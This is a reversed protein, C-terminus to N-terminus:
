HPMLRCSMWRLGIRQESYDVILGDCHCSALMREFTKRSRSDQSHFRTWLTDIYHNATGGVCALRSEDCAYAEGTTMAGEVSVM